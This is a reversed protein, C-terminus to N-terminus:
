DPNGDRFTRFTLMTRMTGWAFGVMMGLMLGVIWAGTVCIIVLGYNM